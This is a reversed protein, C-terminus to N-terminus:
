KTGDIVSGGGVALVFDIQEQRALNVAKMLTEYTPNPEIGSFEIIYRGELANRVQGLTGNKKVSGGGYTILLRAQPPVENQLAAIQGKGFLIKVPNQFVFNKM